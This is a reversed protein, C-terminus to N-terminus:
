GTGHATESCLYSQLLIATSSGFHLSPIECIGCPM